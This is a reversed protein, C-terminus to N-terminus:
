WAEVRRVAGTRALQGVGPSRWRAGDWTAESGPDLLLSAAPGFRRAFRRVRGRDALNLRRSGHPLPVVGPYVGLGRDFAEAHGPGQPPSDHFLVVEPALAMAGASWCVVPKGELLTAVGFARLRNLLVAVHGGAVAVLSAASLIAAIEKRHAAVAPRELPRFRADFDDRIERVKALHTRDLRRVAAAAERREWAAVPSKGGRNMLEIWAGMAHSLRINYLRRLDILASQVDRHGRALEPDRAAVEEARRYLALNKTRGDLAADLEQDEGEREQWGATITAVPGEPALRRAAGPLTVQQRQPGLLVLSL